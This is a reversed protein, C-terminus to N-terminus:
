TYKSLIEYLKEETIKTGDYLDDDIMFAPAVSCAGICEVTEIYFRGNKSEENAKEGTIKEFLELLKKCGMIHCPLNKCLRIHHRAKRKRRFMDYFSIVGEIHSLPVQLYEALEEMHHFEIDRYKSYILHLAPIIVQEKVPFTQVYKDIKQRLEQTLYKYELDTSRILIVM